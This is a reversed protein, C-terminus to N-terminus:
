KANIPDFTRADLGLVEQFKLIVQCQGRGLRRQWRREEVPEHRSKQREGLFGAPVADEAHARTASLLASVAM